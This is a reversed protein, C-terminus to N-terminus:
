SLNAGGKTIGLLAVNQPLEAMTTKEQEELFAHRDWIWKQEYAVWGLVTGCIAMVVFLTRLSYRLWRRHPAIESM